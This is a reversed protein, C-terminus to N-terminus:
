RKAVGAYRDQTRQRHCNACVLDCKTVEAKIRALGYGRTRMQSLGLVKQTGERHDWDMVWPPYSVGCDMCPGNKLADCLSKYKENWAKAKDLYKQRNELYHQRRYVRQSAKPNTSVKGRGVILGHDNNRQLPRHPDFGGLVGQCPSQGGLARGCFAYQNLEARGDSLKM